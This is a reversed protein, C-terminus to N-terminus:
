KVYPRRGISYYEVGSKLGTIEKWETFFLALDANKLAEKPKQVYIM